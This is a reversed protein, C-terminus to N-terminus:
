RESAHFMTAPEDDVEVLGIEDGIRPRRDIRALVRAGEEIEALVIWGEEPDTRTWALVTAGGSFTRAETQARCTLCRREQPLAARGCSPCRSGEIM